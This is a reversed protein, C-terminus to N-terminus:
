LWPGSGAWMGFPRLHMMMLRTPFCRLNMDSQSLLHFSFFSHCHRRRTLDLLPRNTTPQWIWGMCFGRHPSPPPHCGQCPLLTGSYGRRRGVVSWGTLRPHLSPSCSVGSTRPDAHQSPRSRRSIFLERSRFVLSQAPPRIRRCLVKNRMEKRMRKICDAGQLTM